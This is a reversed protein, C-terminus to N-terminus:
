DPVLTIFRPINQGIDIQWVTKVMLLEGTPTILIARIKYRVGYPTEQIETIEENLHDRRIDQELEQWNELSYGLKMLLHAKSKGRQHNPNLLYETLKDPEIIAQEHNPIKM